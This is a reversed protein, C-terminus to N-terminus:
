LLRRERYARETSFYYRVGVEVRDDDGAQVAGQADLNDAIRYLAGARLSTSTDSFVFLQRLEATAELREFTRPSPLVLWRVGGRLGLGFDDDRGTDVRELSAGANLDLVKSLPTHFILGATLQSFDGTDVYEGILALPAVGIDLSGALRFGNDDGPTRRGRDHNVFGGEVYSYDHAAAVAPLLLCLAGLARRCSPTM